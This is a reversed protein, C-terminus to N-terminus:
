SPIFVDWDPDNLLRLSGDYPAVVIVRQFTWHCVWTARCTWARLFRVNPDELDCRPNDRPTGDPHRFRPHRFWFTM